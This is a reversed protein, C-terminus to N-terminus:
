SAYGHERYWRVARDIAAGVSSPRHGLDDIAKASSSYMDVRGMQVGELPVAPHGGTVRVRLDDAHAAVTAVM